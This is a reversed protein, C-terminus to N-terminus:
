RQIILYEVTTGGTSFLVPQNIPDSFYGSATAGPPLTDMAIGIAQHYIGVSNTTGTNRIMYYGPDTVSGMPLDTYASDPVLFSSKIFPGASDGPQTHSNLGVHTSGLSFALMHLTAVENSM